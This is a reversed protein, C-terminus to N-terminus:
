EYRKKRKVVCADEIENWVKGVIIRTAKEQNNDEIYKILKDRSGIFDFDKASIKKGKGAWYGEDTLYDVCSGIDDIGHSHYIPVEVVREKGTSRNKKIQIKCLVGLQRTKGKVTKKIKSKVSSWMEITAYFRLAHGGSRTKKEFGFGLNDRTQNLIILISGSRQLPGLLQRINSANKKAKGDGYSGTTSKGKRHADKQEQFKEQEAYSTLSDMSDLIYIFPQDQELADDIHYYFDEITESYVACEDDDVAPPEIRYAVRQGFFKVLNMLAGSVSNDYIFRYNDFNKNISAEALCTLSLFTKGSASDGVIFYYYGKAFGRLPKGTCALNLLTSGTSLYDKRTLKHLTTKSRMSKKVDDINM